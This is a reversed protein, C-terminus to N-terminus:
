QGPDPRFNWPNYLKLDAGRARSQLEQMDLWDARLEQNTRRSRRELEDQLQLGQFRQHLEWAEAMLQQQTRQPAGEYMRRRLSERMTKENWDDTYGKLDLDLGRPNGMGYLDDSFGWYGDMNQPGRADEPNYPVPGLGNSDVIQTSLNEVYRRLNADGAKFGIPDESIWQGLNSDYWRNLNHQYTTADDLQKGTYGFILDVAANTEATLKGFANYTRHNTIATVGTGENLDAIDRITGLHDSLAWLTNGGSGLGTVQEDALLQDVQNAWLYRHALNSAAAGDFQLVANIGDDYVWYQSTAAGGGAGDADYTRKVLRNMHDYAYDVQKVVSGMANNRFKVM